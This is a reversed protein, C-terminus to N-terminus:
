EWLIREADFVPGEVCCREYTWGSPSSEDKVKVACGVCVGIGCALVTELSVQCPVHRRASIEAVSRLMPNPGCAYIRIKKPGASALHENLLDTVLGAHGRSADETSIACEIDSTAFDAECVVGLATQAGLLAKVKSDPFKRRLHRALLALPAAGCGGAVLLHIDADALEFGTGLPGLCDILDGPKRDKLFMTGRGRVVYLITFVGESEDVRYVSFPRRLLPDYCRSDACTINVFQGPLSERAIKPERATLAMIEPSLEQQSILECSTCVKSTDGM